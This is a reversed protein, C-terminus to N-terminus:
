LGDNKKLFIFFIGGVGFFHMSWLLWFLFWPILCCCLCCLWWLCKKKDNKKKKKRNAEQDERERIRRDEQNDIQVTNMTSYDGPGEAQTRGTHNPNHGTYEPDNPRQHLRPFNGPLQGQQTHNIPFVPYSNSSLNNGDTDDFGPNTYAHQGLGFNNHNVVNVNTTANTSVRVDKHSLGKSHSLSAQSREAEKLIEAKAFISNNSQVRQQPEVSSQIELPLKNSKLDVFNDSNNSSSSSTISSITSLNEQHDLDIIEQNDEPSTLSVYNNLEIDTTRETAVTTTLGQDLAARQQQDLLRSSAASSSSSSSPSSSSSSSSSNSVSLSQNSFSTEKFDNGSNRHILLSEGDKTLYPTNSLNSSTRDHKIIDEQSSRIIERYVIALPNKLFNWTMAYHAFKLM